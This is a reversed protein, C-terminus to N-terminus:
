GYFEKWYNHDEKYDSDSSFNRKRKSYNEDMFVTGKSDVKQPKNQEMLWKAESDVEEMTKLWGSEIQMRILDAILGYKDYAYKILIRKELNSRRASEREKVTQDRIIYDELEIKNSTKRWM